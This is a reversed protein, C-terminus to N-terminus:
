SSSGGRSPLCIKSQNMATGVAHNLALRCCHNCVFSEEALWSAAVGCRSGSMNFAGDYCLGRCQSLLPGYPSSIDKITDARTGAEISNM